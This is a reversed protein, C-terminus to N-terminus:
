LRPAPGRRSRPAGQARPARGELAERELLSRLEAVPIGLYRAVNRQVAEDSPVLTGLEFRSLTAQRIGVLAAVHQQSHEQDRRTRRLLKRFPVHGNTEIETIRAVNGSAGTHVSRRGRYQRWRQNASYGPTLLAIPGGGRIAIREGRRGRRLPEHAQRRGPSRSAVVRLEVFKSARCM